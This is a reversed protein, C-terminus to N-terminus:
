FPADDNRIVEFDAGKHKELTAVCSNYIESTTRRLFYVEKIARVVGDSTNMIWNSIERQRVDEDFDINYHRRFLSRHIFQLEDPVGM